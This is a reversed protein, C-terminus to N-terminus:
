MGSKSQPQEAIFKVPLGEHYWDLVAQRRAASSEFQVFLLNIEEPLEPDWGLIVPEETPGGGDFPTKLLPKGVCAKITLGKARCVPCRRHAFGTPRITAALCETCVAHRCCKSENVLPFDNYCIESYALDRRVKETYPDACLSVM